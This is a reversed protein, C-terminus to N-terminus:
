SLQLRIALMSIIENALLWNPENKTTTQQNKKLKSTLLLRQNLISLTFDWTSSTINKKNSYIKLLAIFSIFFFCSITTYSIKASIVSKEVREHYIWYISKKNIDNRSIWITTRIWTRSLRSYIFQQFMQGFTWKFSM